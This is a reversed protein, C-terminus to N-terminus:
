HGKYQRSNDHLAINLSFLKLFKETMKIVM